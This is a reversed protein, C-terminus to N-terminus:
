NRRGPVPSLSALRPKSRGKSLSRSGSPRKNDRRRKTREARAPLIFDETEMPALPLSQDAWTQELWRQRGGVSPSAVIATQGVVPEVEVTSRLTVTETKRDDDGLESVPNALQVPRCEKVASDPNESNSLEEGVSSGEVDTESVVVVSAEVAPQVGVTEAEVSDAKPAASLTDSEAVTSKEDHSINDGRRDAEEDMDSNPPCPAVIGAVQAYSGSGQCEPERHGFHRCRRCYPTNCEHRIHGQMGCRLCLPLRGAVTILVEFDGGHAQDSLFLRHPIDEKSDARIMVSRTTMFSAKLSKGGSLDVTSKETYVNLVNVGKARLAAVITSNPMWVPLWHVRARFEQTGAPSFSGRHGNVVVTEKLLQQKVVESNLTIYWEANRSLPGLCTISEFSDRFTVTEALGRAVDLRSYPKGATDLALKLTRNRIDKSTKIEEDTWRAAKSTTRRSDQTHGVRQM